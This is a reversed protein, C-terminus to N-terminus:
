ESIVNYKFLSFEVSYMKEIWKGLKVSGRQIKYIFQVEKPFLNNLLQSVFTAHDYSM